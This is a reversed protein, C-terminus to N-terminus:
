RRWRYRLNACLNEREPRLQHRRLRLCSPRRGQECLAPSRREDEDLAEGMAAVLLVRWAQWVPTRWCTALLAADSLAHRMTMAPPPALAADQAGFAGKTPKGYKAAIYEALSPTTDRRERKVGVRCSLSM